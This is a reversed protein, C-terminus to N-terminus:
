IYWTHMIPTMGSILINTLYHNLKKVNARWSM